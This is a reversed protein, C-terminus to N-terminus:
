LYGLHQPEKYFQHNYQNYWGVANNIAIEFSKPIAM